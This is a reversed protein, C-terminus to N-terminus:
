QGQGNQLALREGHDSMTQMLAPRIEDAPGFVRADGDVVVLITDAIELLSPTHCALVVSSGWSKATKIAEILAREGEADLHANPEDLVILSPKNYFARALGVRQRQGGSLFGGGHAIKTDVGSPLRGILGRIGTVDIADDIDAQKYGRDMRAINEGITGAFLEISQPLYGTAPGIVDRDWKALPLGDLTLEGASPSRAGVLLKAITSKGAGSPGVIAAVEGPEVSFSIDKLIRAGTGAAVFQVHSLALFGEPRIRQLSRTDDQGYNKDLEVLRSYAERAKNLSRWSTIIQDIPALARGLIISGAIIMGVSIQGQIVLWAGAGLVLAQAFIRVFKTLGQFGSARDSAIIQHTQATQLLTQWRNILFRNMGMAQVTEANRLGHDVTQQGEVFVESYDKIEDRTLRDNLLTILFLIIAAGLTMWGIIPHILFAVLFFIPSFPLDLLSKLPSLVFSRIEGIDNLYRAGAIDHKLTAEIANKVVLSSAEIEVWCGLRNLMWGRVAELLGYAALAVGALVTIVILTEIQLSSLVRDYLQIMYIPSTLALVNIFLSIFLLPPLGRRVADLRAKIPLLPKQRM